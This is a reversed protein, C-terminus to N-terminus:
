ELVRINDSSIKMGNDTNCYTSIFRGYRDKCDYIKNVIGQMGKSYKRGKIVEIKAGIFPINNDINYQKLVSENINMDSIDELESLSFERNILGDGYQYELDDTIIGKIEKTDPNYFISKQLSGGDSKIKYFGELKKVVDSIM